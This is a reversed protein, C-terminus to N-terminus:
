RKNKGPRNPRDPEAGSRHQAEELAKRAADVADNAQAIDENVADLQEQIGPVADHDAQTATGGEIKAQIAKLQDVLSSAQAMADTRVSTVQELHREAAAIVPGPNLVPGSGPGSGSGPQHDEGSRPQTPEGGPLPQNKLDEVEQRLRDAEARAADSPGTQELVGSAQEAAAAHERAAAESRRTAEDLADKSAKLQDDTAAGSAHDQVAQDHEAAAQAQAENAERLVEDAHSLREEADAAKRAAQDAKRAEAELESIIGDREEQAARRLADPDGLRTGPDGADESSTGEEETIPGPERAESEPTPTVEVADGPGMAGKSVDIGGASPQGGIAGTQGVGSGGAFVPPLGGAGGPLGAATGLGGGARGSRAQGSGRVYQSAELFLPTDTLGLRRANTVIARFPMTAAPNHSAVNLIHVLGESYLKSSQYVANRLEEKILDPQRQFFKRRELKAMRRQFKRGDVIRFSATIPRKRKSEFYIGWTIKSGRRAAERVTEPIVGVTAFGEPEFKSRHLVDRGKRFELYGDGEYEETVDIRWSSLGEKRVDKKPWYPMVARDGAGRHVKPEEYATREIDLVRAVLSVAEEGTGAVHLAARVTLPEGAEVTLPFTEDEFGPAKFTVEHSGAALAVVSPTRGKAEGGIWIEAPPDSRFTINATTESGCGALGIVLGLAMVALAMVRLAMGGLAMGPAGAMRPSSTTKTQTKM